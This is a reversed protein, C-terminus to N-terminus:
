LRELTRGNRTRIKVIGQEPNLWILTRGKTVVNSTDFSQNTLQVINEYNRGNMRMAGICLPVSSSENVTQCLFQKNQQFLLDNTRSNPTWVYWNRLSDIASAYIEVEGGTPSQLIKISTDSPASLVYTLHEYYTYRCECNMKCESNAFNSETTVNLPVTQRTASDQFNIVAGSKYPIVNLVTDPVKVTVKDKNMCCSGVFFVTSSVWLFKMFRM